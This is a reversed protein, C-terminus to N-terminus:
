MRQDPHRLEDFERVLRSGSMVIGYSVDQFTRFVMVLGDYTSPLQVESDKSFSGKRYGTDDNIMRGARHASFIHGPELGQRTGGSLSVIQLSGVGYKSGKTALIRMDPPVSDMARPHFTLDPSYNIVPLIFDGAQIETRDRIVDLVSIEGAERVRVRSVIWMEYGVPNKPSKTWPASNDWLSANRDHVAQRARWHRKPKVRRITEPNGALDYINTLRAVVYETGAQGSLGRAYTTDRDTATIRDEFNAVIYPLGEFESPALVRIDRLFPRVADLPVSNIAEDKDIRRINPSLKVTQKGTPNPLTAAQAVGDRNVRLQPRGDVYVLSVVDGPYILHPNDIQPNAQWIAPWQWPKDLFKGSIGWLTDGKVVVYEDPHDSRVSVDQAWVAGALMMTLTLHFFNRMVTSGWDTPMWGDKLHPLYKLHRIMDAM